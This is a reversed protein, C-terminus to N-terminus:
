VAVSEESPFAFFMLLLASCALLSASLFLISLSKQAIFGAIFSGAIRSAGAIAMTYLGQISNRFSAGAQRNLYMVPAVLTALVIMGHILQAAVAVPAFPFAALIAFRFAMCGLGLLMLRKFGLAKMLRGFCLMFGIEFLAGVNNIPGIWYERVGVVDTLYLPYFGYYAANALGVLFMAVCFVLVPGRSLARAAELTPLRTARVKAGANENAELANRQAKNEFSLPAPLRSANFAGLLSFLAGSALIWSLAGGRFLILFLLIGPLIFGLTGWVRVQEYPILGRGAEDHRQLFALNLADLLPLVAVYALSQLCLLVMTAGPSQSFNLGAISLASIAFVVAMIRRSDVRSDALFSLVVPSLLVAISSFAMAGGIQPQSFGKHKLLVSLFPTLSGMIGYALFYQSKIGSLSSVM